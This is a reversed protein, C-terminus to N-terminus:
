VNLSVVKSKASFDLESFLTSNRGAQWVSPYASILVLVTWNVPAPASSPLIQNQKTTCNSTFYSM